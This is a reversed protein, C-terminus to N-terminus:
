QMQREETFFVELPSQSSLVDMPEENLIKHYERLQSVWNVGVKSM